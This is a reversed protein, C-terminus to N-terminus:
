KVRRPSPLRKITPGKILVEAINRPDSRTAFPIGKVTKTPTGLSKGAVVPRPLKNRSFSQQILGVVGAVSDAIDQKGMLVRPKNGRDKLAKLQYFLEGVEPQNPFSIAGTYILNKLMNYDEINVNKVTVRIGAGRIQQELSAANWHDIRVRTIRFLKTLQVLIEVLNNVNVPLKEEPRWVLIADVVFKNESTEVHGIALASDSHKEGADIGIYVPYPIKVAKEIVKELYKKDGYNNLVTRTMVIPERNEIYQSVDDLYEFFSEEVVSPPICLYKKKADEPNKRFYEEYEVPVKVTTGHSDIEFDFFEGAFSNPRTEWPVRYSAYGKVEGNLIREYNQYTFDFDKPLRPYSTIIGIWPLERTSTQLTAYIDAANALKKESKFGSAEDMIWFILNKGEWSESQAHLCKAVINQNPFVIEGSGPKLIISEVADPNGGVLKGSQLIKYNEKFWQVKKFRNELRMFVVDKAQAYTTAVNVLSIEDSPATGFYRQPSKMCSLVYLAYLYLISSVTGKGSGKGWLWVYLHIERDKSFLKKPDTGAVKLAEELQVPSLEPDKYLFRPDTVFTEFDVPEEKWISTNVNELIEEWSM